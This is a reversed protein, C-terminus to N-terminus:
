VKLSTDVTFRRELFNGEPLRVRIKTISNGSDVPPEEPLRSLAM